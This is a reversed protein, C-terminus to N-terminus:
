TQTAGFWMEKNKDSQQPAVTKTFQINILHSVTSMAEQKIVYSKIKFSLTLAMKQLLAQGLICYKELIM